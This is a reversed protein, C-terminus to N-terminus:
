APEETGEEVNKEDEDVDKDKEESEEIEDPVHEDEVQASRPQDAVAPPAEEDDREIMDAPGGPGDDPPADMTPEPKEGPDTSNAM